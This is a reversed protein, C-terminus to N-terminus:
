RTEKKSSQPTSNVYGGKTMFFYDIVDSANKPTAHKAFYNELEPIKAEDFEKGDEVLLIAMLKRTYKNARLWQKAAVINYGVALTAKDFLDKMEEWQEDTAPRPTTRIKAAYSSVAVLIEPMAKLMEKEFPATLEDTEVTLSYLFKKGDIEFIKTEM